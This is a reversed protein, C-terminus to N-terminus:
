WPTYEEQEETEGEYEFNDLSTKVPVKKGGDSGALLPSTQLRYVEAKPAYYERKM